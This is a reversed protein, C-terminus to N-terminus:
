LSQILLAHCLYQSLVALHRILSSTPSTTALCVCKRSRLLVFERYRLSAVMTVCLLCLVGVIYSVTSEVQDARSNTVSRLALGREDSLAGWILCSQLKLFFIYIYIQDSTGSQARCWSMRVSQGDTTFNTVQSSKVQSSGCWRVWHGPTYSPWGTGRPYLYPFRAVKKLLKILSILENRESRFNLTETSPSSEVGRYMCAPTGCPPLAILEAFLQLIHM